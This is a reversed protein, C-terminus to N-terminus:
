ILVVEIPDVAVTVPVAVDVRVCVTVMVCNEVTFADEVAALELPPKVKERAKSVATPVSITPRIAPM